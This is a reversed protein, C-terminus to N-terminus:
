VDIGEVVWKMTAYAVWKYEDYSPPELARWEEWLREKDKKKCNKVKEQFFKDAVEQQAKRQEFTYFPEVTEILMKHYKLIDELPTTLTLRLIQNQFETRKSNYEKLYEENEKIRDLIAEESKM